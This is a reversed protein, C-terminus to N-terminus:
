VEVLSRAITVNLTEPEAEVTAEHHAMRTRWANFAAQARADERLLIEPWLESYRLARAADHANTIISDDLDNPPQVRQSM